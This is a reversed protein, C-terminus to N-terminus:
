RPGHSSLVLLYKNAALLPKSLTSESPDSWGAKYQACSRLLKGWGLCSAVAQKAAQKSSFAVANVYRRVSYMYIYDHHKAPLLLRCLFGQAIIGATIGAAQLPV